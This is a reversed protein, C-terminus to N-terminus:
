KKRYDAPIEFKSADVAGASAEFLETTAKFKVREEWRAEESKAERRKGFPLKSTVAGLAGDRAADTVSPGVPENRKIEITSTIPEGPAKKMEEILAKFQKEYAAVAQMLGPTLAREDLELARLYRMQFDRMEQAGSVEPCNWQDFTIWVKDQPNEKHTGTAALKVNHCTWGSITKPAPDSQVEVTWEYMDESVETTDREEKSEEMEALGKKIKERFEAFTMETYTKEKRNLTWILEKDLRTITVSQNEKGGSMTKMLGSKWLITSEDASRDGAYYAISKGESEGMFRTTTKVKRTVDAQAVGVVLLLILFRYM